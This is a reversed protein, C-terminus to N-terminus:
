KLSIGAGFVFFTNRPAGPLGLAPTSPNVAYFRVDLSFALHPKAFWRAGGGYDITQLREEDPPLPAQGEPVVSWTSAAIGGSLYSWGAGTGFNLSIQPGLYTLRETVTRLGPVPEPTQTAQSIMLRGGFGFTVARFKFPFVHVAANAGFGRGPLEGQALGRSAALSPDSPFSVTTGQLDVVFFPIPPPEQAGVEYAHGVLAAFVGLAVFSRRLRM